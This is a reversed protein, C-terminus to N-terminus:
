EIKGGLKGLMNMIDGVTEAGFAEFRALIDDCADIAGETMLPWEEVELAAGYAMSLGDHIQEITWEDDYKM